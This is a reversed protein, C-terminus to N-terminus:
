KAAKCTATESHDGSASTWSTSDYYCANENAQKCQVVAGCLEPAIYQKGSAGYVTVKPPAYACGALLSLPLLILFAKKM